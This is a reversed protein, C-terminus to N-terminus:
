TRMFILWLILVMMLYIDKIMLVLCHSKFFDYTGLKHLKSQIRKMNHRIVKKNFLVNVFEEHRIKKNIGKAKVVEKDEATILSHMTSKLGFFECIIRGKFEDKMKSIVKKNTEDFFKSNVPFDSLDFLNKGQYSDGYVYKTKIEYVLSETDTFM